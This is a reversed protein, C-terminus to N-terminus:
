LSLSRNRDLDWRNRPFGSSTMSFIRATAFWVFRVYLEASPRPLLVAVETQPMRASDIARVAQPRVPIPIRFLKRLKPAFTASRHRRRQSQQGNRMGSTSGADGIREFLEIRDFLLHIWSRRSASVSDCYAACDRQPAAATARGISRRLALRGLRAFALEVVDLLRSASSSVRSAVAIRASTPSRPFSADSAQRAAASPARAAAPRSRAGRRHSPPRASPSAAKPQRAPLASLLACAQCSSARVQALQPLLRGFCRSSPRRRPPRARFPGCRAKPAAPAAGSSPPASRDLDSPSASGCRSGPRDPLRSARGSQLGSRLRWAAPAERNLGLRHGVLDGRRAGRPGAESSPKRPINVNGALPSSVEANPEGSPSPPRSQGPNVQSVRGPACTVDGHSPFIM